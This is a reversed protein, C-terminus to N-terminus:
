TDAQRATAVALAYVGRVPDEAAMAGALLVVPLAPITAGLQELLVFGFVAALGYEAFFQTM